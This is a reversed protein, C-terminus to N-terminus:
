LNNERKEWVPPAAHLNINGDAWSTSSPFLRPILYFCAHFYTHLRHSVGQVGLCLQGLFGTSIMPTFVRFIENAWTVTFTRLINQCPERLTVFLREELLTLIPSSLLEIDIHIAIYNKEIVTIHNKFVNGIYM